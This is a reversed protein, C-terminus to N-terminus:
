ANQPIQAKKKLAKLLKPNRQKIDRDAPGDKHVAILFLDPDNYIAKKPLALENGKVIPIKWGSASEWEFKDDYVYMVVEPDMSLRVWLKRAGPSHDYGALVWNEKIILNRYLELGIGKGQYTSKVQAQDVTHVRFANNGVKFDVRAVISKGDFVRLLPYTGKTYYVDFGSGVKWAFDPKRAPRKSTVMAYDRDIDNRRLESIKM